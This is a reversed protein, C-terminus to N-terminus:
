IYSGGLGDFVVDVADGTLRHIERVFDVQQYDIPIGSLESVASAAQVIWRAL